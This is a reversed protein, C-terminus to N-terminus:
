SSHRHRHQHQQLQQQPRPVACVIDLSVLVCVCATWVTEGVCVGHYDGAGETTRLDDRLGRQVGQDGDASVKAAERLERVAAPRDLQLQVPCLRTLPTDHHDIPM